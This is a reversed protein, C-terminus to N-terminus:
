NRGHFVSKNKEEGGDGQRIAIGRMIVRWGDDERFHADLIQLDFGCGDGLGVERDRAERETARFGNGRTASKNATANGTSDQFIADGDALLDFLIIREDQEFASEGAIRRWM